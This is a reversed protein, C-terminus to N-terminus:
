KYHNPRAIERVDELLTFQVDGYAGRFSIANSGDDSRITLVDYEEFNSLCEKDTVRFQHGICEVAFDTDVKLMVGTQKAFEFRDKTYSDDTVPKIISDKLRGKQELGTSTTLKIYPEDFQTYTNSIRKLITGKKVSSAFYEPDVVEYFEYLLLDEVVQEISKDELSPSEAEIKELNAVNNSWDDLYKGDSSTGAIKVGGGGLVATVTAEGVAGFMSKLVKVRDGVKIETSPTEAEDTSSETSEISSSDIMLSGFIGKFTGQVLKLKGIYAFDEKYSDKVSQVLPLRDNDDRVIKVSEGKSFVGDDEKFKFLRSSAEVAFDTTSTLKIGLEKALEFRGQKISDDFSHTSGREVFSPRSIRCRQGISDIFLNGQQHQLITGVTLPSDGAEETVTYFAGEDHMFDEEEQVDAEEHGEALELESFFVYHFNGHKDKCQPQNDRDDKAITVLGGVSKFHKGEAVYAFDTSDELRIGLSKAFNFRDEMYDKDLETPELVHTGVGLYEHGLSDEHTHSDVKKLVTGKALASNDVNVRYFEDSNSLEELDAEHVTSAHVHGFSFLYKESELGRDKLLEQYTVLEEPTGKAINSNLYLKM